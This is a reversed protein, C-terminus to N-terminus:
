QSEPEITNFLQYYKMYVSFSGNNCSRGNNFALHVGFRLRFYNLSRLSIFRLLRLIDTNDIPKCYKIVIQTSRTVPFKGPQAQTLILQIKIDIITGVKRYISYNM